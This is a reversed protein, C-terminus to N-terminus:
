HYHYCGSWETKNDVPVFRESDEIRYPGQNAPLPPPTILAM